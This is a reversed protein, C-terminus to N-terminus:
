TCRVMVAIQAPMIPSAILETARDPREVPERNVQRLVANVFGAASRKRALKVLEVSEMVAAHAPVRDLYRLQFIGMRLAIRVEDDLKTTSRGAYHAALFDLQSQRPKESKAPSARRYSGDPQLFRAKTNDAFSVALIENIIRERLVGDEIPSPGWLPAGRRFINGFISFSGLM